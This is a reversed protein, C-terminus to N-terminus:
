IFKSDVCFTFDSEKHTPLGFVISSFLVFILNLSEVVFMFNNHSSIAENADFSTYTAEDLILDESYHNNKYPYFFNYNSEVHLTSCVCPFDDTM